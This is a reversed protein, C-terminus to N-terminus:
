TLAAVLGEAAGAVAEGAGRSAAAVVDGSARVNEKVVVSANDIAETAGGKGCKSHMASLQSPTPLKGNPCPCGVSSCYCPADPNSGCGPSQTFSVRQQSVRTKVAPNNNLCVLSKGDMDWGLVAGKDLAQAKTLDNPNEDAGAACFKLKEEIIAQWGDPLASQGVFANKEGGGTATSGQYYVPKMSTVDASSPCTSDTCSAGPADKYTKGISTGVAWEDGVWAASINSKSDDRIKAWGSESAPSPHEAVCTRWRELSGTGGPGAEIFPQFIATRINDIGSAFDSCDYWSCNAAVEDSNGSLTADTASPHGPCSTAAVTSCNTVSTATGVDCIDNNGAPTGSPGTMNCNGAENRNVKDSFQSCFTNTDVPGTVGSAQSAPTGSPAAQGATVAHCFGAAIEEASATRRTTPTATLYCIKEGATKGICQNEASTMDGGANRCFGDQSAVGTYPSSFGEVNQSFMMCLLLGVLVALLVHKLNVGKPLMSEVSKVLSGSSSKSGM